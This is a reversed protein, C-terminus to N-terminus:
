EIGDFCGQSGLREIVEDELEWQISDCRSGTRIFERVVTEAMEEDVYFMRPVSHQDQGDSERVLELSDEALVSVWNPGTGQARYFFKGFELEDHECYWFAVGVNPARKAILSSRQSASQFVLEFAPDQMRDLIEQLGPTEFRRDSALLYLSATM